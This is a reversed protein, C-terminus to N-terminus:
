LLELLSHFLSFVIFISLLFFFYFYFVFEYMRHFSRARALTQIHAVYFRKVFVNVLLSFFVGVVLATAAAFVYFAIVILTLRINRGHWSGLRRALLKARKQM